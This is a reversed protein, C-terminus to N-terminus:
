RLTSQAREPLSAFVAAARRGVADAMALIADHDNGPRSEAVAGTAAQTFFTVSPDIVAVALAESMTALLGFLEAVLLDIAGVRLAVDGAGVDVERALLRLEITLGIASALARVDASRPDTGAPLHHEFRELAARILHPPRHQLDALVNAILPLHSTAVARRAASVDTPAGVDGLPTSVLVGRALMELEATIASTPFRRLLAVADRVADAAVRATQELAGNHRLIAVCRAVSDQKWPERLAQALADAGHCRGSLTLLVPLTYVGERLDTGAARGLEAGGVLDRLDDALQFAVGVGAAFQRVADAASGSLAGAAAGLCGALEYLAGTKAYARRLYAEPSISEVFLDGVEDTQGRAVDRIARAVLRRTALPETAVLAAARVILALGSLLAAEAGHEAAVTPRGRRTDSGDTVDDHCLAGAHVLELATAGRIAGERVVGGEVASVLLTLRGRLLKGGTLHGGLDAGGLVVCAGADHLRSRLEQEAARPTMDVSTVPGRAGDPSMVGM